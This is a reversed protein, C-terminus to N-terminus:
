TRGVAGEPQHHHASGELALCRSGSGRPDGRRRLSRVSTGGWRGSGVTDTETETESVPKFGFFLRAGDRSWALENTSPVTFGKPADEKSAVRRADGEGTWVVVEADGPEGDEDNVAAVFAFVDADKGWTLGTYRGRLASDLQRIVPTEGRQDYLRVGNGEGDPASISVALIPANGAFAFDAVSEIAIEEGTTLDRLRAVTGVEEEKKEDEDDPESEEVVPPEEEEEDTRVAEEDDDEATKYALWRGDDSLAFSEVEDIRVEEGGVLDVISLGKKPKDKNEDKGNKKGKDGEAKEREALTPKIAAVVWRGDRSIEPAAGREIRYEIDSGTSRIVVEGDGRDPELAYAVWEGDASIVPNEIQRFQMLDLFTLTKEGGAVVTAAALLVVVVSLVWVSRIRSQDNM